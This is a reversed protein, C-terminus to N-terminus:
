PKGFRITSLYYEADNIFNDTFPGKRKTLLDFNFDITGKRITSTSLLKKSFTATASDYSDIVIVSFYRDGIKEVTDWTVQRLSPDHIIDWKKHDHYSYIFSKDDTNDSDTVPIYPNHVITFQDMSDTLEKYHFGTEPYIPLDKPQYRYKRKECVKGCDSYHIWTFTTDYRGPLAITITGLGNELNVKVLKSNEPAQLKKKQPVKECSGLILVIAFLFNKM